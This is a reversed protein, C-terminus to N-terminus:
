SCVIALPIALGLEILTDFKQSEDFRLMVCCGAELVTELPLAAAKSTQTAAPGGPITV